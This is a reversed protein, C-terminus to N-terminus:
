FIRPIRIDAARHYGNHKAHLRLWCTSLVPRGSCMGDSAYTYLGDDLFLSKESSWHQIDYQKEGKEGINLISTEIASGKKLAKSPASAALILDDAEL